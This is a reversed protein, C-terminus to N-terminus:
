HQKVPRESATRKEEITKNQIERPEESQIEIARMEFESIREEAM